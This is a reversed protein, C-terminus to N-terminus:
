QDPMAGLVGKFDARDAENRFETISGKRTRCAFGWKHFEVRGDAFTVNAGSGRDRAGPVSYWYNPDDADLVFSGTTMSPAEVDIFTFWASPRHVESMKAKFWGRGQKGWLNDWGGNMAVSLTFNFPRMTRNGGYPWSTQDSPCRYIRESKTYQWLAGQRIGELSDNLMASGTVWSNSTSYYNKWAGVAPRIIWNPVLRDQNDHAYQMWALHLQKLNSTCSVSRVAAKAKGLAPLILAALIGIITIVLLLEILTFALSYRPTDEHPPLFRLRTAAIKRATCRNQRGQQSSHFSM